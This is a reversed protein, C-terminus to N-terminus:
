EAPLQYACIGNVIESRLQVLEPFEYFFLVKEDAISEGAPKPNLIFISFSETIDEEPSTASYATNFQEPYRSYFGSSLEWDLKWGGAEYVNKYWEPYIKKWFRRYFQNLYSDPNSCGDRSAYQPCESTGQAPPYDFVRGVTLQDTNLTLLHGFEHILNETLSIPNRSDLIDAGLIWKSPNRPSRRVWAILNHKGDTFVQYEVIWKRQDGPLIAIFYKWIRYHAETDEQYVLYESPVDPKSSQTIEDGNVKYVMLSIASDDDAQSEDIPTFPQTKLVVKLRDMCADLCDDDNCTLPKPTPPPVTATITPTLTPSPTITLTPEATSTPTAPIERLARCALALVILSTALLIPRKM